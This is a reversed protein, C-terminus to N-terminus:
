LNNDKLSLVHIRLEASKLDTKLMDIKKRLYKNEMNLKHIESYPNVKNVEIEPTGLFFRKLLIIIQKM